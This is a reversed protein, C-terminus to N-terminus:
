PGSVVFLMVEISDDHLGIGGVYIKMRPVLIGVPLQDGRIGNGKKARSSKM